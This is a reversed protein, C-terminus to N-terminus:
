CFERMTGEHVMWERWRQEERRESSYASYPKAMGRESESGLYRDREQKIKERNVSKSQSKIFTNGYEGTQDIHSDYRRWRRRTRNM